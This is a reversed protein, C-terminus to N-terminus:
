PPAIANKLNRAEKFDPRNYLVGNLTSLAKEKEGLTVQAKAIALQIDPNKIPRPEIEALRSRLTSMIAEAQAGTAKSYESVKTEIELGNKGIKFKQISPYGVMIVTVLFMPMIGVLSKGNKARHILVALAACFLLIGMFLLVIEYSYLGDFLKM